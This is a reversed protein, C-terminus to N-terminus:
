RGGRRACVGANTLCAHTLLRPSAANCPALSALSLSELQAALPPRLAALSRLARGADAENDLRVARRLEATAARRWDRSVASALCLQRAPLRAFVFPLATVPLATAEDDTAPSAM